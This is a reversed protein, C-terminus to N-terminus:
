EDLLQVPANLPGRDLEDAIHTPVRPVQAAPFTLVGNGFDVGVTATDPDTHAVRGYLAQDPHRVWEGEALPPLHRSCLGQDRLTLYPAAPHWCPPGDPEPHQCGRTVRGYGDCRILVPDPWPETARVVAFTVAGNPGETHHALYTITLGTTMPWTKLAAAAIAQAHQAPVAPTVPGEIPLSM